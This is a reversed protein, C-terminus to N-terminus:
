AEDIDVTFNLATLKIELDQDAPAYIHAIMWTDDEVVKLFTVIGGAEVIINAERPYNNINVTTHANCFNFTPIPNNNVYAQHNPLDQDSTKSM